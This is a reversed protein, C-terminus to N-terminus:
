SSLNEARRKIHELSTMSLRTYKKVFEIDVGDGLMATVIERERSMEGFPIAAIWGEDRGEEREKSVYHEKAASIDLYWEMENPLSSDYCIIGEWEQNDQFGIVREGHSLNLKLIVYPSITPETPSLAHYNTDIYIKKM